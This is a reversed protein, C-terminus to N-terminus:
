DSNEWVIYGTEFIGHIKYSISVLAERIPGDLVEIETYLPNMNELVKQMDLSSVRRGEAYWWEPDFYKHESYAFHEISSEVLTNLSFQSCVVGDYQHEINKGRDLLRIIKVQKPKFKLYM